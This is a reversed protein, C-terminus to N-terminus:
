SRHSLAWPVIWWDTDTFHATRGQELDRSLTDIHANVQDFGPNQTTERPCRSGTTGHPTM